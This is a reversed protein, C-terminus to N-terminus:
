VSRRSAFGQARRVPIRDPLVVLSRLGDGAEEPLNLWGLWTRFARDDLASHDILRWRL